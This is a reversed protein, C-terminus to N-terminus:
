ITQGVRSKQCFNRHNVLFRMCYVIKFELERRSDKWDEAFSVHQNPINKLCATVTGTQQAMVKTLTVFIDDIPATPMNTNDGGDILLFGTDLLQPNYKRHGELPVHITLWHWWVKTGTSVQHWDVDKLWEQSTFNM